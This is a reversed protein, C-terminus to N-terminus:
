RARETMADALSQLGKLLKPTLMSHVPPPPAAPLRRWGAVVVWPNRVAAAAWELVPRRLRPWLHRVEALVEYPWWKDGFDPRAVEFSRAKSVSAGRAHLYLVPLLEFMAVHRHAEWSHSPWRTLRRLYTAMQDLGSRNEVAGGLTANVATGNLSATESFVIAPFGLAEQAQSLLKPTAVEFGHHQMPQYALVARQAALVRPRLARLREASNAADNAVVLIADVDSFGTRDGRAQSGFFILDVFGPFTLAARLTAALRGQEEPRWVREGVVFEEGGQRPRFRRHMSFTTEARQARLRRGSASLALLGSHTGCLYGGLGQAVRREISM